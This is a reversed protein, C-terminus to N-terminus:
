IQKTYKEKKDRYLKDDFTCVFANENIFKYASHAATVGEAVGTIAQKFETDVVDGAAFIGKVNTTSDHHDIIIEGKENIEVSLSKAIDSLPINGIAGFVGDLKLNKSGKCPKDLILHNVFKDGKIEIVNTNLIVEIKKNKEVREGNIPEPRIKEGRYIIYVKKAYETLLLAEKAATDSGGIVAVIKNKFAFGDCNHVIFSKTAFSNNAEVSISYVDGSYPVKQIERIPLVAFNNHIYAHKQISSRTKIRPHEFELIKSMNELFQGGANIHYKDKTFSVYRGELMNTKENLKEKLRKQISPIIGQRLLLDRVQYAMIRSTTVLCFDKGRTCGDGRWLGKILEKQKLRPLLMMFHPINKTHSYKDFLIKFLDSIVKSYMIIRSVNDRETVLVKLGFTSKLINVVDKIYNKEKKHFYFNLTHGTASGEALYYGVLRMFDKTIPVKDILNKATHTKKHPTIYKGHSQVDLYESIKIFKKDITEKIIPYLVSDEKKLAGAEIWKPKTIKFDRWYDKNKGRIIRCSLVPHNPTLTVFETFYRPKIKVLNGKYQRRGFGSIKQYSGDITLVRTSLSIDKIKKINSNAVLEEEPPLCLACYHVGKSEYELAGKMPLKKWKTGTAIIITKSWYSKNEDTKILFCMGEKSTKLVETVREKKIEVKDKYDLAHDRIKEALEPGTLRKFGPYNEVVETLTIVGGIPLENSSSDGLVLTQLNLRGAYMAAALGTVGAGIIIVDYFNPSKAKSSKSTRQM